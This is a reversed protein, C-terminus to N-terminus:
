TLVGLKPAVIKFEPKREETSINEKKEFPKSWIEILLFAGYDEKAVQAIEKIMKNLGNKTVEEKAIIYAAEGFVLRKTGIDDRKLPIRYLSLFPLLRDIHIRGGGPLRERIFENKLLRNKINEIMEDSITLEKKRKM